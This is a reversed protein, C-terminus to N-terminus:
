KEKTSIRRSKETLINHHLKEHITTKVRMHQRNQTKPCLLSRNKSKQKQSFMFHTNQYDELSNQTNKNRELQGYLWEFQGRQSLMIIPKFFNNDLELGYITSFNPMKVDKSGIVHPRFCLSHVKKLKNDALNRGIFDCEWSLDLKVKLM